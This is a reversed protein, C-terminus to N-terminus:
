AQGKPRSGFIAAGIRVHTAGEEIAVEFDGTMGMSLIRRQELPLQAFTQRLRRFYTRAMEPATGYPAMGMFGRLNVGNISEMRQAMELCSEFSVGFKTEASDLKVELLIPQVVRAVVARRGIAQALALSDVGHILSFRGVLYKAKNSQLHGIFHWRLPESFQDLKERVEQYYSEGFDTVGAAVAERMRDIPVTKTVAILTVDEPRRGAREAATAMRDRIRAINNQIETM